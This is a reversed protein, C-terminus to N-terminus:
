NMMKAIKERMIKGEPTLLEIKLMHNNLIDRCDYGQNNKVRWDAGNDLLLEAVQLAHSNLADHLPTNGLSDKVDVSFGNALLIQSQVVRGSQAAVHLISKQQISQMNKISQGYPSELLIQMFQGNSAYASQKALFVINSQGENSEILKRFDAIDGKQIISKCKEQWNAAEIEEPSPLDALKTGQQEEFEGTLANWNNWPKQRCMIRIIKVITHAIFSRTLLRHPLWDKWSDNESYAMKICNGLAPPVPLSNQLTDLWDYQVTYFRILGENAIKSAVPYDIGIHKVTNKALGAPSFAVCPTQSALAAISSLGGGLSHGTCIINGKVANFLINTLGVAQFYQPEYNGLGQRINAYFDIIDNSGAFCMIYLNNFKFISSQFGTSNDNLLDFDIGLENLKTKGLREIGHLGNWINNENKNYTAQALLALIYDKQQAGQGYFDERLIDDNWRIQEDCVSDIVSNQLYLNLSESVLLLANKALDPQIISKNSLMFEGQFISFSSSYKFISPSFLFYHVKNIHLLFAM